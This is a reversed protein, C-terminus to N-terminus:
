GGEAAFGARRTIESPFSFDLDDVFFFGAETDFSAAEEAAVADPKM